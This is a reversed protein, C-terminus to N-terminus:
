GMINWTINDPQTNKTADWARVRIEECQVLDQTSIECYWFCWTFYKRGHRLGDDPYRRFCYYWTKGKNISLEVKEVKMGGGSYAFGEVRFSTDFQARNTLDIIKGHEPRCIISQLAQENCATDPNHFLARASVSNKDKIFSPVVRNDWIDLTLVFLILGPRYHNTSPHKSVWLKSLWKM